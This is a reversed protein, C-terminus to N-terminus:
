GSTMADPLTCTGTDITRAVGGPGKAEMQSRGDDDVQIRVVDGPNEGFHDNLLFIEVDFGDGASRILRGESEIGNRLDELHSRQKGPAYSSVLTAAGREESLHMHIHKNAQFECDVM